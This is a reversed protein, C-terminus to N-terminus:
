VRVFMLEHKNHHCHFVKGGPIRKFQEVLIPNAEGRFKITCITKLEPKWEIWVQILELLKEPFCIVDSFLWDIQGLEGPVIKFADKKLYQVKPNHLLSEDISAKDVSIVKKCLKSLAWTWSGPCSGLDICTENSQPISGCLVLAEWLKLYASSPPPTSPEVFLLEGNPFPSSCQSSYILLDKELLSFSGLPATPLQHPFPALKASLKRLQPLQEAILQARRHHKISYLAWNRQISKLFKAAEGISAFSKIQPNLWSNQAWSLNTQRLQKSSKILYLREHKAIINAKYHSLEALLEKERDEPALCAFDFTSM